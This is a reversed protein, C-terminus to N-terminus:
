RKDDIKEKIDQKKENFEEKAEVKQSKYYNKVAQEREEEVNSSSLSSNYSSVSSSRSHCVDKAEEKRIKVALLQNEKVDRSISRSNSKIKKIAKNIMDKSSADKDIHDKSLSRSKSRSAKNELIDEHFENITSSHKDAKDRKIEEKKIKRENSRSNTREM